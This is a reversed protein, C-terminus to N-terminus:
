SGGESHLNPMLCRLQPLKTICSPGANSFSINHRRAPCAGYTKRSWNLSTLLSVFNRIKPTCIHFLASFVTSCGCSDVVAAGQCLSLLHCAPKPVFCLSKPIQMRGNLYIYKNWLFLPSTIICQPLFIVNCNCQSAGVATM